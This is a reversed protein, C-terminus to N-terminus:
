LVAKWSKSKEYAAKANPDAAVAEALITIFSKSEHNILKFLGSGGIPQDEFRNIRESNRYWCGGRDGRLLFAWVWALVYPTRCRDLRGGLAWYCQLSAKRERWCELLAHLFHNVLLLFAFKTKLYPLPFPNPFHGCQIPEIWGWQWAWFPELYRKARAM